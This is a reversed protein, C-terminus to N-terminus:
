LERERERERERQKKKVGSGITTVDGLVVMTMAIMRKFAGLIVECLPPRRPPEQIQLNTSSLQHPRDSAATFLISLLSMM